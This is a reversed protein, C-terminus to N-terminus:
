ESSVIWGTPEMDQTIKKIENEAKESKKATVRKSGPLTGQTQRARRDENTGTTVTAQKADVVFYHAFSDFNM